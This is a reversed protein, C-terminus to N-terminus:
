RAGEVATGARRNIRAFVRAMATVPLVRVASERVLCALPNTTRMVAATRRGQELLAGVKPMREREYLQLANSVDPTSTLVRGLTVADVIAQAAGQGTHPLLPHAADGLLTM